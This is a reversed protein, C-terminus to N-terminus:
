FKINSGSMANFPIELSYKKAIEIVILVLENMPSDLYRFIDIIKYSKNNIDLEKNLGSGKSIHYLAIGELMAMNMNIEPHTHELMWEVRKIMAEDPKTEYQLLGLVIRCMNTINSNHIQRSTVSTWFIMFLYQMISFGAMSM